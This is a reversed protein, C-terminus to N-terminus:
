GKCGNDDNTHTSHRARKPSPMHFTYNDQPARRPKRWWKHRSCADRLEQASHAGGTTMLPRAFSSHVYQQQQTNENSTSGVHKYFLACDPCTWAPMRSREDASADTYVYRYKEGTATTDLAERRADPNDDSTEDPLPENHDHVPEIGSRKGEEILAQELIDPCLKRAQRWSSSRLPAFRNWDDYLQQLTGAFRYDDAAERSSRAVAQMKSAAKKWANKEARADSVAQKFYEKEQEVRKAEQRLAELAMRVEPSPRTSVMSVLAKLHWVKIATPGSGESDDGPFHM